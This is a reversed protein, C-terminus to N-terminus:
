DNLLQLAIYAMLGSGIELAKEDINFTSTHVPSNINKANNAVGLRYFCAPIQLSYFAFDESSMRPILNQVKQDGLYKKAYCSVEETLLIDNNLCPYGSPINIEAIAGMSECLLQTQKVILHLAQKRWTEDMSRFTGEIKVEDPIVNCVNGGQIKGFTLVSPILPPCHRSIIQQLSVILNASIIIPDICTHPAAAHGGKGKITIYIEDASAMYKGAYFGVNGVEMDPAVHLAIINEPKPNELVGDAIMLSAGGPSKEEGPQFILQVTGGYEDVLDKLIYAAGLLCATHVDHGCAHMVGYNKSCYEVNNEEIIPLADIDARLAIVKTKAKKGKITALVGTGAINAKYEINKEKLINQIFESTEFEKFSLEPNAHIHKRWTLIENFYKQSLQNIIQKQM